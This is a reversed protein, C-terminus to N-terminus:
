AANVGTGEVKLEIEDSQEDSSEIAIEGDKKQKEVKDENEELIKGNEDVIQIAANSNDSNLSLVELNVVSGDGDVAINATGAADAGDMNVIDGGAIGITALKTSDYDPGSINIQGDRGAGHIEGSDINERAIVNGSKDMYEIAAAGNDGFGSSMDSSIQQYVNSHPTIRTDPNDRLMNSPQVTFAVANEAAQDFTYNLGFNGSIQNRYWGYVPNDGVSSNTVSSLTDFTFGSALGMDGAVFGGVTGSFKPMAEGSNISVPTAVINLGKRSITGTGTITDAALKYNPNSLNLTYTVKHNQLEASGESKGANPNDYVAKATLGVNDGNVVRNGLSVNAVANETGDTTGDYEKTMSKIIGPTLLRQEITGNDASIRGKTGYDRLAIQPMDAGQTLYYDENKLEIDYTYAKNTGANANDYNAAKILINATETGLMGQPNLNTNAAYTGSLMQSGDYEKTPAAKIDVTIPLPRIVGSGAATKAFTYNNLQVDNGGDSEFGSFLIDRAIVKGDPARNVHPSTYEGKVGDLKIGINTDDTEGNSMAATVLGTKSATDGDKWSFHNANKDFDEPLSKDPNNDNDLRYDRNINDVDKTDIYVPRRTIVGETTDTLEHPQTDSSGELKYNVAGSDKLTLTYAVTIPTYNEQGGNVNKDLYSAAVDYDVNDNSWMDSDSLTIHEKANEVSRTGDYVKSITGKYDVKLIYPTIINNNETSVLEQGNLASADIRYNNGNGDWVKNNVSAEKLQFKLYHNTAADPTDYGAKKIDYDAYLPNGDKDLYSDGNNDTVKLKLIDKEDVTNGDLDTVHNLNTDKNYMRTVATWEQTVKADIPDIRGKNDAASYYVAGDQTTLTYNNTWDGGLKEFAEQVGTYFLDKDEVTDGPWNVNPDLHDMDLGYYGRVANFAEGTLVVEEPTGDITVGTFKLDGAQLAIDSETNYPKSAYQPNFQLEAQSITGQGLLSSELKAEGTENGDGDYNKYYLEYNGDANNNLSFNGKYEVISGSAANKNIYEATIGSTNLTIEDGELIDKIAKDKNVDDDLKINAGIDIGKVVKTGDYTKTPNGQAVVYVHRPTIINNADTTLTYVGDAAYMNNITLNEFTYNDPDLKIVYQVTKHDNKAAAAAEDGLPLYDSSILKYALNQKHGNVVINEPAEIYGSNKITEADYKRNYAVKGNGDYEKKAPTFGFTLNGTLKFPYIEGAGTTTSGSVENGDKDKLKLQYNASSADQNDADKVSISINSYKVYNAPVKQNSDPSSYEAHYDSLSIKDGGVAGVFDAEVGIVKPDNAEEAEAATPVSVEGDYYKSVPKFQVYLDKADITNSLTIVKTVKDATIGAVDNGNMKYSQALIDNSDYYIQYNENDSVDITYEVQKNEIGYNKDLYKASSTNTTEGVLSDGDLNGRGFSILYDSDAPTDVAKEVGYDANYIKSVKDHNIKAYITRPNIEGVGTLTYENTYDENEDYDEITYNLLQDPTIVIKYTVDKNGGANIGTSEAFVANVSDITYNGVKTNGVYIGHDTVFSEANDGVEANGDYEKVVDAFTLKFNDKNLKAKTIDGKGAVYRVANDGEGVTKVIGDALKYNHNQLLNDVGAYAVDKKNGDSNVDGNPTFVTKDDGDKTFAGYTGSLITNDTPVGNEDVKLVDTINEGSIVGDVSSMDVTPIDKPAENTVQANDYQYVRSVDKFALTIGKQEIRGKDAVIIDTQATDTGEFVYNGSTSKENGEYITATYKIRKDEVQKTNSNYNVNKDAENGASELYEGSIKITYPNVQKEEDESVLQFESGGTYALLDTDKLAFKHEADAYEPKVYADGDYSKDARGSGEGIKITRPTISGAGVVDYSGNTNLVSGGFEYNKAIANLEDTSVGDAAKIKIKYKIGKADNVNQTTEASADTKSKAFDASVVEFLIKESDSKVLGVINNIEETTYDPAAADTNQATKGVAKDYATKANYQRSATQKVGNDDYWSFGYDTLVRPSITGQTKWTGNTEPVADQVYKKDENDYYIYGKTNDNGNKGGKVYILNNDADVLVYNHAATGELKLGSFKVNHKGVYTAERTTSDGDKDLFYATGKTGVSLKVDDGSVIDSSLKFDSTEVDDKAIATGDYERDLDWGNFGVTLAKHYITGTYTHSITISDDDNVEIGNEIDEVAKLKYNGSDDGTLALTGSVFVNKNLGVDASGTVDHSNDGADKYVAIPSDSKGDNLTGTFGVTVADGELIGEDGNDAFLGSIDAETLKYEGDYVKAFEKDKLATNANIERPDITVNNGVLDYGHQDSYLLAKTTANRQGASDYFVHSPDIVAVNAQEFVASVAEPAIVKTSSDSTLVDTGNKIKLYEGNYTIGTLDNGANNGGTNAGDAGNQKYYGYDYTTTKIGKQFATLIPMSQGEYIRWTPRTGTTTDVGGKNSINDGWGLLSSYVAVTNKNTDDIGTVVVNKANYGTYIKKNNATAINLSHAIDAGAVAMEQSTSYVRNIDISTKTGQRFGLAGHNVKGSNYSDEILNTTNNTAGGILGAVETGSVNAANYSNRITVGQAWGVLGGTYREGGSIANDSSTNLNYVNNLTTGVAYAVISGACKANNVKSVGNFTSNVVGINEITAGDTQYFLGNANSINKIEHFNGDLKGKFVGTVPSFNSLKDAEIDASLMYKGSLNEGITSNWNSGDILQYYELEPAGKGTILPATQYHDVEKGSSNAVHVYGYNDATNITTIRGPSSPYAKLVVSDPVSGGTSNKVNDSYFRINKGEVVVNDANIAGMNVVDTAVSTCPNALVTSMSEGSAAQVADAVSVNRTSAYLSGVDVQASEGLVIGNPNIIYVENGGKIAGNIVSTNAGSVINMYNNEKVINDKTSGDFYVSEGNAVSFDQWTVVNNKETGVVNTINGETKLVSGDGGGVQFAGGVPAGHAVPMISFMGAMLAISVGLALQNYERDKRM